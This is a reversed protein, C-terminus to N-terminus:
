PFLSSGCLARPLTGGTRETGARSPWTPTWFPPTHPPQAPSSALFQCLSARCDIHSSDSLPIYSNADRVPYVLYLILLARGLITSQFKHLRRDIEEAPLSRLTLPALVHKGFLFMAGMFLMAGVLGLTFGNFQKYYSPSPNLCAAAPLQVLNLNVINVKSM